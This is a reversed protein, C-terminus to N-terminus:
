QFYIFLYFDNLHFSIFIKLKVIGYFYVSLRRWRLNAYSVIVPHMIVEKLDASKSMYAITAMQNVICEDKPDKRGMLSMEQIFNKFSLEKKEKRNNQHIFNKYNFEIEFDEDSPRLGNTTICSDLHKKLVKADIDSIALHGKKNQMGIYAGKKLLELTVQTNGCQVSYHLATCNASDYQNVDINQQKMLIEFCNKFNADPADKTFKHGLNRVVIPLSPAANLDLNPSKILAALCKWHGRAVARKLASESDDDTKIAYNVDAGLDILRQTADTLDKSVAAILLTEHQESATFLVNMIEPSSKAIHDIGTLFENEKQNKLAHYLRNFNWLKNTPAIILNDDNTYNVNDLEKDIDFYPLAEEISARTEADLDIDIANHLIFKILTKKNELNLNRNKLINMIPTMGHRNPLNIDACQEVLLGICPFVNRFNVDTIQETLTNIPTNSM